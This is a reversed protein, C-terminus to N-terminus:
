DLHGTTICAAWSGLALMSRRSSIAANACLPKAVPSRGNLFRLAAMPSVNSTQIMDICLNYGMGLSAGADHETSAGLMAAARHRLTMATNGVRGQMSIQQYARRSIGTTNASQSHDRERYVSHWKSRVNQM